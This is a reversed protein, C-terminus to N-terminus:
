NLEVHKEQSSRSGDESLLKKGGQRGTKEESRSM